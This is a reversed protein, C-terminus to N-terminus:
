EQRKHSSNGGSIKSIVCVKMGLLSHNASNFHRAVPKDVDGNRVSRLHEAFRDSLRRETERVYLLGCRSSSILNILSSSIGTFCHRIVFNSKPGSICTSANFFSCTNCRTRSCPFTVAPASLNQRLASHILSDQINKNRRFSVLPNDSFISSTEPNNKLVQFKRPIIDSVKHIFPHFMLVPPIKDESISEFRQKLADSRPISSTRQFATHLLHTPYGRQVLFSRM